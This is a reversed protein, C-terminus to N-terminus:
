DQRYESKIIVSGDHEIFCTSRGHSESSFVILQQISNETDNSEVYRLYKGAEIIAVVEQKSQGAQIESCVRKIEKVSFIWSYVLYGMWVLILLGIIKTIKM